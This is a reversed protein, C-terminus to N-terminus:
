LKQDQILSTEMSPLIWLWYKIFFNIGFFYRWKQAIFFHYVKMKLSYIMPQGNAHNYMQLISAIKWQKTLAKRLQITSVRILKPNIKKSAILKLQAANLVALVDLAFLLTTRNLRDWHGLFGNGVRWNRQYDIMSVLKESFM